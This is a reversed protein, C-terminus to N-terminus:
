HGATMRGFFYAVILLIIGGIVQIAIKQRVERAETLQALKEENTMSRAIERVRDSPLNHRGTVEEVADRVVERLASSSSPAPPPTSARELRVIALEVRELQSRLVDHMGRLEHQVGELRTSAAEARQSVADAVMIIAQMEDNRKAVKELEEPWTQLMFLM